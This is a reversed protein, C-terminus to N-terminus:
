EEFIFCNFSCGYMCFPFFFILCDILRFIFIVPLHFCLFYYLAASYWVVPVSSGGLSLSLSLGFLLSLLSVDNDWQGAILHEGSDYMGGFASQVAGGSTVNYKASGAFIHLCFLLYICSSYKNTYM